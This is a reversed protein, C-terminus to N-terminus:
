KEEPEDYYDADFSDDCYYEDYNFLVATIVATMICTIAFLSVLVGAIIKLVKVSKNTDKRLNFLKRNDNSVFKCNYRDPCLQVENKRDHQNKVEKNINVGVIYCCILYFNSLNM